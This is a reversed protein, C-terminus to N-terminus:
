RIGKEFMLYCFIQFKSFAVSVFYIIIINILFHVTKMVFKYSFIYWIKEDIDILNKTRIHELLYKISDLPVPFYLLRLFWSVQSGSVFINEPGHDLILKLAPVSGVRCAWELISVTCIQLIFQIWILIVPILNNTNTQYRKYHNRSNPHDEIRRLINRPAEIRGADCFLFKCSLDRCFM